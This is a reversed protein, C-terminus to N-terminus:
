SITTDRDFPLVFYIEFSGIEMMNGWQGTTKWLKPGEYDSGVRINSSKPLLSKEWKVEEMNRMHM